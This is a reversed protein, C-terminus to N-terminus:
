CWWWGSSYEAPTLKKEKARTVLDKWTRSITFIDVEDAKSITPTLLGGEVAVAMAINIDKNYQIAGSPDYAANLVPHSRLTLAVAKALLASMTVGKSKLATYLTDFEDTVIERYSLLM